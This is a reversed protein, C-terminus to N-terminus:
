LHVTDSKYKGAGRKGRVPRAKQQTQLVKRKVEPPCSVGVQILKEILHAKRKPAGRPAPESAEELLAELHAARDCGVGAARPAPGEVQM